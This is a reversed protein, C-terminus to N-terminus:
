HLETFFGCENTSLRGMKSCKIHTLIRGISDVCIAYIDNYNVFTHVLQSRLRNGKLAILTFKNM